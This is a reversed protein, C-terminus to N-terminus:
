GSACACWSLMSSMFTNAMILGGDALRSATITSSAPVLKALESMLMGVARACERGYHPVGADFATVLSAGDWTYTKLLLEMM